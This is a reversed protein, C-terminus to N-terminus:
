LAVERTEQGRKGERGDRWRPEENGGETEVWKTGSHNSRAM